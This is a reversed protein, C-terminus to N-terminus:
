HQNRNKKGINKGNKGKKNQRLSSHENQMYKGGINRSKCNLQNLSWKM